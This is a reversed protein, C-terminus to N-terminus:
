HDDGIVARQKRTIRNRHRSCVLHLDSELVFRAATDIRMGSVIM